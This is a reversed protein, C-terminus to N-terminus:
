RHQHARMSKWLMAFSGVIIMLGLAVPAVWRVPDLQVGLRLSVIFPVCVFFSGILVCLALLSTRMWSM